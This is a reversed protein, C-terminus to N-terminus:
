RNLERLESEYQELVRLIKTFYPGKPIPQRGHGCDYNSGLFGDLGSHTFTHHNGSNRRMVSFGLDTLIRDIEGCTSNKRKLTNVVDDYSAKAM